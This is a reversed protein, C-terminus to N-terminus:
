GGCHASAARALRYVQRFSFDATQAVLRALDKEALRNEQFQLRGQLNATQVLRIEQRGGGGGRALMGVPVLRYRETSTPIEYSTANEQAVWAVDVALVVVQQAEKFVASEGRLGIIQEEAVVHVAPFLNPHSNAPHGLLARGKGEGQTESKLERM